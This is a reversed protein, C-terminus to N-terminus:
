SGDRVHDKPECDRERRKQQQYRRKTRAVFEACLGCPADDVWGVAHGHLHQIAEEFLATLDTVQSALRDREGAVADLSELAESLFREKGELWGQLNIVEESLEVLQKGNSVEDPCIVTAGRGINKFWEHFEHRNFSIFRDPITAIRDADMVDMKWNDTGPHEPYFVVDDPCYGARRYPNCM